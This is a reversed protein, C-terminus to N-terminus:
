ENFCDECLFRQNMGVGLPDVERFHYAALNMCGLESCYAGEGGEEYEEKSPPWRVM